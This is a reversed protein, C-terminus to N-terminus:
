PAILTVIENVDSPRKKLIKFHAVSQAVRWEGIQRMKICWFHAISPNASWQSRLIASPRFDPRKCRASALAQLRPLM